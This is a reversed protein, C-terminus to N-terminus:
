SKLLNNNQMVKLTPKPKVISLTMAIAEKLQVHKLTSIELNKKIGNIKSNIKEPKKMLM